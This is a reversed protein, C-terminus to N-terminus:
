NKDEQATKEGSNEKQTLDKTIESLEKRYNSNERQLDSPYQKTM